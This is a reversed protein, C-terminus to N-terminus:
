ETTQQRLRLNRLTTEYLRISLRMQILGNKIRLAELHAKNTTDAISEQLEIESEGLDHLYQEHNSTIDTSHAPKPKYSSADALAYRSTLIYNPLTLTLSIILFYASSKFKIPTQHEATVSSGKRRSM